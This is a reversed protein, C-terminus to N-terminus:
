GELRPLLFGHTRQVMVVPVFIDAEGIAADLGDRDLEEHELLANAVAQVSPWVPVLSERAIEYFRDVEARLDEVTVPVGTRLLHLVAGYGDSGEIGEFTSVLSPDTHALIGIETELEYQRPRRKTLIHEAAFGALYVQVLSTVRAFMLQGSRGLTGHAERISVHRPRDNIAASLVAHGAEHYATRTRM